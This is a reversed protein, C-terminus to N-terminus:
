HEHRGFCPEAAYEVAKILLNEAHRDSSLEPHPGFLVSRAGSADQVEVVAATGKMEGALKSLAMKLKLHFKKSEGCCKRDKKRCVKGCTTCIWGNKFGQSREETTCQSTAEIPSISDETLQETHHLREAFLDSKYRAWVSVKSQSGKKKHCTLDNAAVREASGVRFLPGNSYPLGVGDEMELFATAVDAPTDSVLDLQVTGHLDSIDMFHEKIPTVGHVLGRADRGESCAVIAGACIGIFGGLRSQQWQKLSPCGFELLSAIKHSYGGPIIFVHCSNMKAKDYKMDNPTM